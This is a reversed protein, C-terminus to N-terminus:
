RDAAEGEKWTDRANCHRRFGPFAWENPFARCQFPKVPQIRCRNDDTVFVCSEDEREALSLGTRHETEVTYRELFGPLTMGLFDAIKEAEEEAIHVYGAWRCCNGCRTCKFRRTDKDTLYGM